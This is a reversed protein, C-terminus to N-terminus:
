VHLEIVDRDHLAHDRKVPQGPFVGTGWLRAYKLNEAFDKHVLRAVDIVTSGAPCTFPRQMEPPKSPLKSYVRIVHLSEYIAQRLTELGTGAAASVPFVPFQGGFLSDVVTLRDAAGASDLKNAALLTQTYGVGTADQDDIAPLQRVLFTKAQALRRCVTDAQEAGDDTSLDVVLVAVDAGRIMGALYGELYDGTIPPTDILQVAVDEWSMMGPQPAHTTFPYPAVEPHAHTLAALLQSKGSNPAGVIVAQGAGERPIRFSPGKKGTKREHDLEQKTRSIRQKLDAQMKETGKHKPLLQMMKRLCELKEEATQARRYEEEAKQYQPTLNAPM